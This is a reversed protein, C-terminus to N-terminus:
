VGVDAWRRRLPLGAAYRTRTAPRQRANGGQNGLVGFAALPTKQALRPDIHQQEIQRKICICCGFRLLRYLARFYRCFRLYHWRLATQVRKADQGRM